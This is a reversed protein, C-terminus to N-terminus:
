YLKLTAMVVMYKNRDAYDQLTEVGDRILVYFGKIASRTMFNGLWM